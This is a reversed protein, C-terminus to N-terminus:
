SMDGRRPPGARFDGGIRTDMARIMSNMAHTLHDTATTMMEATGSFPNTGLNKDAEPASPGPPVAPGRLQSESMKQQLEQFLDMARQYAQVVFDATFPAVSDAQQTPHHQLYEPLKQNFQAFMKQQGARANRLLEASSEMVMRLQERPGAFVDEVNHNSRTAGSEEVM